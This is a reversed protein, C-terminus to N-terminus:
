LVAPRALAAGSIMIPWTAAAVREIRTPAPPMMSRRLQPHESGGVGAGRDRRLAAEGERERAVEVRSVIFRGGQSSERSLRRYREAWEPVTLRPPPTKGRRRAAGLRELPPLM